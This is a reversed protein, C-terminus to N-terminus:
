LSASAPETGPLSQQTVVVPEEAATEMKVGKDMLAAVDKGSAIKAEIHKKSVHRIATAQSSADVLYQKEMAGIIAAVVYLRTRM